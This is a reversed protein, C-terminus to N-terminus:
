VQAEAMEKAKAFDGEEYFVCDCFAQRGYKEVYAKARVDWISQLAVVFLRELKHGPSGVPAGVFVSNKIEVDTM